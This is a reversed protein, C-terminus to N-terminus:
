PTHFRAPGGNNELEILSPSIFQCPWPQKRENFTLGQRKTVCTFVYPSQPSVALSLSLSGPGQFTINCAHHTHLHTYSPRPKSLRTLGLVFHHGFQWTHKQPFSRHQPCSQQNGITLKPHGFCSSVPLHFAQKTLRHINVFIIYYM